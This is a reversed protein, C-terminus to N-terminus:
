RSLTPIMDDVAMFTKGGGGVAHFSVGGSHWKMM